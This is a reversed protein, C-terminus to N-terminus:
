RHEDLPLAEEATFGLAELKQQLRQEAMRARTSAPVTRAQVREVHRIHDCLRRLREHPPLTLNHELLTVDIGDAIAADWGRGRSPRSRGADETTCLEDLKM